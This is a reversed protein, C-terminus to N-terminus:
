FRGWEISRSSGAGHGGLALVLLRLRHVVLVLGHTGARALARFTAQFWGNGQQRRLDDLLHPQVHVGLDRLVDLLHFDVLVGGRLGLDAAVLDTSHM